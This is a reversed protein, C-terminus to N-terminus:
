ERSVPKHQIIHPPRKLVRRFWYRTQGWCEAPKAVLCAGAYLFAFSWPDRHGRRRGAAIRVLQLPYILVAVLAWPSIAVAAVLIALPIAVGYILSSLSERVFHREPLRGHIASGEAYAHGARVARKWWQSFRTMDADHTAMEDPLRKIRWGFQRLRVCLEPEEGAIIRPNFGGAERLASVRFLAIGGCSTAEGPAVDWEMDCLRNYVSREPFRERLRGAVAAVRADDVLAQRGVEVFRKAVECDGDVFLVFEVNSSLEILRELGANRGRAASFPISPDLQVVEAGLAGAAAPSGDTSGSDVYFVLGAQGQVSVLCRRLREGENRGIVVVGVTTANASLAIARNAAQTSIGGASFSAPQGM